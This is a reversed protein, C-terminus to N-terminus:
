GSQENHCCWVCIFIEGYNLTISIMKMIVAPHQSPNVFMTIIQLQALIKMATIMKVSGMLPYLLIDDNSSDQVLKQSQQLLELDSFVGINEGLQSLISTGLELAEGIRSTYALSSMVILNINMEDGLSKVHKMTEDVIIHLGELDAASLASKAAYEFIQLSLEYDNTWHNADLRLFEIGNKFFCYASTFASMRSAKLGATLNYKVYVAYDESLAAPRGLNIQNLAAFFMSDDSTESAINILCRGYRLHNRTRKQPDVILSYSAEEIHDHCFAFGLGKVYRVLGRIEAKKLPDTLELGLEIELFKIYDYNIFAGFMSHTHLASQVDLPLKSIENTYCIAVNDPLKMSLMMDEDWMWRKRFLDLYLVKDRFLSLLLQMLFLPNGKTKKHVISTLSRIIRPSLCLLKSMAQNLEVDGMCQLKITTAYVGVVNVNEIMKYFPHENTMEDDRYCSLFFFNKRERRLLHYLVAVSADDAHPCSPPHSCYRLYM